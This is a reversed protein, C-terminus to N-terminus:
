CIKLFNIQFINANGLTNISFVHLVPDSPAVPSSFCTANNVYFILKLYSRM